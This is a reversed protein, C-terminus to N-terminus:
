AAGTRVGDHDHEQAEDPTVPDPREDANAGRLRRITVWSWVWLSVVGLLFVGLGFPGGIFLAVIGHWIVNIAILTVAVIKFACGTSFLDTSQPRPRSSM